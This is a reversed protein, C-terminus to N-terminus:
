GREVGLGPRETALAIEGPRVPSGVFPDQAVLMAGDLDAYDVLPTLHAAAAISVASEVMCGLMVDLDHARATHIMRVAERLGGCKMLKLNVIDCRDAVRPIDRLGVCSEDAAIPLVSDRHVDRLAALDDGPVPQEVFEVDARACREIMAVAESRSWAGNADVRITAGPAAERVAALIRRDHDTGLKVKLIRHGADIASSAETAMEEPPAIGLTFSSEISPEGGHGLYHCLALGMRRAILDHVAIDVAARAAPAGPLRDCLRSRLGEVAFPDTMAEVAERLEPVNGQVSEVTEGYYESPAAAGVGVQGQDDAIDVLVIEAVEETGRAITFPRHLPLSVHEAHLSLTM